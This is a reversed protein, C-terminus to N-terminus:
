AKAGCQMCALIGTGGSRADPSRHLVHKAYSPAWSPDSHWSAARYSMPVALAALGWECTSSFRDRLLPLGAGVAPAQGDVCEFPGIDDVVADRLCETLHVVWRGSSCQRSLMIEM